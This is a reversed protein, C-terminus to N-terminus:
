RRHGALVPAGCGASSTVQLSLTMVLALPIM